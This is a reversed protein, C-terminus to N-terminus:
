ACGSTLPPRTVPKLKVRDSEVAMKMTHLRLAFEDGDRGGAAVQVQVRLREALVFPRAQQARWSPGPTRSEVRPAIEIAQPEDLVQRVHAPDVDRPHRERELQPVLDRREKVLNLPQLRWSDVGHGAFAQEKHKALESGLETSRLLSM